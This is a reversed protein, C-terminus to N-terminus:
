GEESVSEEERNGQWLRRPRKYLHVPWTTRQWRM